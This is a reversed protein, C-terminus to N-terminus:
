GTSLWGCQRQAEHVLSLINRKLQEQVSAVSVWGLEEELQQLFVRLSTQGEPRDSAEPPVEGLDWQVGGPWLEVVEWEPSVPEGPSKVTMRAAPHWPGDENDGVVQDEEEEKKSKAASPLAQKEAGGGGAPSRPSTESVCRGSPDDRKGATDRGSSPREASAPDPTCHTLQPDPAPAGAQQELRRDGSVPEGSSSQPLDLGGKGQSSCNLRGATLFAKITAHDLRRLNVRLEQVIKVTNFRSNRESEQEKEVKPKCVIPRGDEEVPSDSQIVHGTDEQAKENLWNLGVEFQHNLEPKPEHEPSEEKVPLVEVAETNCSAKGTESASEGNRKRATEGSSAHCTPGCSLDPSNMPPREGAVAQQELQGNGSPLEESSSRDRANGYFREKKLCLRHRYLSAKSKFYLSCHGCLYPTVQHKDQHKRCTSAKM